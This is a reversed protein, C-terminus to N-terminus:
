LTKKLNIEANTSALATFDNAILAVRRKNISGYGCVIGDAPTKEAMGPASSHALLGMELFSGPDLLRDIRERVTLRGKAHQRAVKDPGGMELAQRRKKQLQQLM